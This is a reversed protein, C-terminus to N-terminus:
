DFIHKIGQEMLFDKEAKQVKEVVELAAHMDGNCHADPIRAVARAIATCLVSNARSSQMIMLMLSDRNKEQETTKAEKRDIYRKIWWVLLGTMASPIGAALIIAGLDMM